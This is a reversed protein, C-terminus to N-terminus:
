QPPEDGTAADGGPRAAEHMAIKVRSVIAGARRLLELDGPSSWVAITNKGREANESRPTGDRAYDPLRVGAPPPLQPSVPFPRLPGTFGYGSFRARFPSIASSTSASSTPPAAAEKKHLLKHSPWAEQFCPKGCFHSLAPDVGLTHCTPCRQEAGPAKCHACPPPQAM